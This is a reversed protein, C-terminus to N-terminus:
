DRVEEYEEEGEEFYMEKDKFKVTVEFLPNEVTLIVNNKSERFQTIIFDEGLNFLNSVYETAKELIKTTPKNVTGNNEFADKSEKIGNAKIVPKM